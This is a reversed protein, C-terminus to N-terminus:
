ERESGGSVTQLDSVVKGSESRRGTWGSSMRGVSSRLSM